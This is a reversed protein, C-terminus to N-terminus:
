EVKRESSQETSAPPAKPTNRDRTAYYGSRTRVIPRGAADVTVKIQRYSGDDPIQPTYAVTYQSRIDRAIQVGLENVESVEKPYYAMGGTSTTLEKLARKAKAAEHHEEEGLLGVAYILVESQVARQVVRELSHQERQRQWRDRSDSSKQGKRKRRRMISRCTSRMACPPAAERILGRWDKNWSKLDNTFPVDLYAEDNFNVIFVEDQPNSAKVLAVGGGGGALRKERMSGSDDILLGMSVPM